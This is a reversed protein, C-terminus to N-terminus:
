DRNVTEKMRRRTIESFIYYSSNKSIVMLKEFEALAKNPVGTQNFIYATALYAGEDKADLTKIKSIDDLAENFNRAKILNAARKHLLLKVSDSSTETKLKETLLRIAKENVHSTDEPYSRDYLSSMEYYYSDCSHVLETFLDLSFETLAKGLADPPYKKHELIDDQKNNIYKDVCPTLRADINAENKGANFCVCFENAITNASYESKQKCGILAMLLLFRTRKKM